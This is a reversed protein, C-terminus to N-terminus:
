TNYWYLHLKTWITYCRPYSACLFSFLDGASPAYDSAMTWTATTAGAAINMSGISVGNNKIPLTVSGTPAVNCKGRNSPLGAVFKEDGNMEIEFLEMGADPKGDISGYFRLPKLSENSGRLWRVDYVETNASFLKFAAWFEEGESKNYTWTGVHTNDVYFDFNNGNYSIEFLLDDAIAVSLASGTPFVHNEGLYIGTAGVGGLTGDGEFIGVLLDALDGTDVALTTPDTTVVGMAFSPFTTSGGVDQYATSQAFTDGDFYYTGAHAAVSGTRARVAGLTSTWGTADGTEAGPNVITAAIGDVTLGISDIYGDNNSGTHRLMDMYIRVTVAGSPATASLTRRTFPQPRAYAAWTTSGIPTNTHDLFDFGMRAEDNTVQEFTSQWWSLEVALGSLDTAISPAGTNKARGRLNFPGTIPENIYFFPGVAM